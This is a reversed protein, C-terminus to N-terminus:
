HSYFCHFLLLGIIKLLVVSTPASLSRHFTRM